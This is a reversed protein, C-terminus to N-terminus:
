KSTFLLLHISNQMRRSLLILTILHATLHVFKEVSERDTCEGPSKVDRWKQNPYKRIQKKILIERRLICGLRKYGIRIRNPIVQLANLLTLLCM